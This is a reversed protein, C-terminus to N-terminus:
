TRYVSVTAPQASILSITRTGYGLPIDVWSGATVVISRTDKAVAAAGVRTYVPATATVVLVQATTYALQNQTQFEISVPTNATLAIEYVGVADHAVTYDAM